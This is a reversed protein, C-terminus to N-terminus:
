TRKKKEAYAELGENIANTIQRDRLKDLIWGTNEIYKPVNGGEIAYYFAAHAMNERAVPDLIAWTGLLTRLLPRVYKKVERPTYYDIEDIVQSFTERIM